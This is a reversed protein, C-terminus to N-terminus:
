RVKWEFLSDLEKPIEGGSRKSLLGIVYLPTGAQREPVLLWEGDSDMEKHLSECRPRGSASQILCFGYGTFQYDASTCSIRLHFPRNSCPSKERPTLQIEVMESITGVGQGHLQTAVPVLWPNEQFVPKDYGGLFNATLHYDPRAIGLRTLLFCGALLWSMAVISLVLLVVNLRSLWEKRVFLGLKRAMFKDLSATAERTVDLGRDSSIPTWPEHACEPPPPTPVLTACAKRAVAYGHSILLHIELDEFRDFDTRFRELDRQWPESTSYYGQRTQVEERILCRYVPQPSSRKALDYEMDSVRKMLINTARVNRPLTQGLSSGVNWDFAGQADSVVVTQFVNTRGGRLWGIWELGLNDYVGGDTLWQDNPWAPKSAHLMQQTLKIPPFFPPFALSAAVATAVPLTAANLAQDGLPDNGWVPGSETFALLSGRTLSTSLIYLEPRTREPQSGALNRLQAKKYFIEYQQELLRTRGGQYGEVIAVITGLVFWAAIALLWNYHLFLIVGALVWVVVALFRCVLRRFIKGRVDSRLFHLLDKAAKEFESPDDATYREWNLVLHAALVSGGSVSCINTVYKLLGSDYFFRVVGLHFLTARFGGGSLTLGIKPPIAEHAPSAAGASPM